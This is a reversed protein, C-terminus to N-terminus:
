PDCQYLNKQVSMVVRIFYLKNSKIQNSKIHNNLMECSNMPEPFLINFNYTKINFFLLIKWISRSNLYNNM